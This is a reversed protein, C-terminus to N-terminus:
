DKSIRLISIGIAIFLFCLSGVGSIVLINELM